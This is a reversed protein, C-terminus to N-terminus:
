CCQSISSPWYSALEFEINSAGTEMAGLGLGRSLTRSSLEGEAPINRIGM